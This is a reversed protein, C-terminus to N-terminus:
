LLLRHRIKKPAHAAISAMVFALLTTEQLPLFGHYAAGFILVKLLTIIGVLERFIQRHQMGETVLLAGGSVLALVLYAMPPGPIADLLYAALVVAAGLQHAARTLLAVPFVWSPRECIRGIKAGSDSSISPKQQM